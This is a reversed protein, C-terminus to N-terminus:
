FWVCSSNYCLPCSIALMRQDNREESVPIQGEGRALQHSNTAKNEELVCRVASMLKTNLLTTSFRLSNLLKIIKLVGVDM